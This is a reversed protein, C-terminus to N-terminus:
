RREFAGAVNKLEDIIKIHQPCANECQGCAVCDSAKGYAKKLNGYYLAQTSFDKNLAQKEANYLAFYKPIPINMPCGKTCYNCGTCPVAISSNIIEVAKDIVSLDDATLPKFNEMYGTNDDLQEFSSMGSLVMFVNKLGAVYRIAWSSVSMHPEKSKFLKEAEEPVNALSGGKVPEMVIVKKGFKEAIEYCKRSQISENEWDLYNLQLQVFDFYPYKTLIEELLAADAHFSFGIEKVRGQEKLEKIFEFAGFKLCKAYTGVNINHLLYYDFFEVGCKELQENFIRECDEAAKLMMTPLKTAVTFEDRKHRKVLCERLFVESQFDHYMYATDFYTFGRELFTDIMKCLMETDVSKADNEDKLPLRMFGFGLKKNEM